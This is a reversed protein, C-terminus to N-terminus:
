GEREGTCSLLPTRILSCVGSPLRCRPTPGFCFCLVLLSHSWSSSPFASRCCCTRHIIGVVLKLSHVKPAITFRTFLGSYPWIQTPGSGVTGVALGSVTCYISSSKRLLYIPACRIALVASM